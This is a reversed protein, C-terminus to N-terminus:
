HPPQLAATCYEQMGELYGNVRLYHYVVGLGIAGLGVVVTPSLSLASTSKRLFNAIRTKKETYPPYRVAADLKTSRHLFAKRHSLADFGHKGHYAGIGSNGVGGFPLFPQITHFHIDNICIGGCRMEDRFAKARSSSSTFLYAALPKEEPQAMSLAQDFSRFTRVPLIPGFIEEKLLKSDDPVDVYITPAIYNDAEDVEGGYYVKEGRTRGGDEGMGPMIRKIREVHSANVIRSYDPSSKPTSTFFEEITKVMKELLRDRVKEHCILTNVSTCMQGCNLWKGMVIRKATVDLDATEDVICPCQGGLELLVPTLHRAAAAMVVKGVKTSGTYLICDFREKLIMTTEEVGGEVVAFCDRDLYSLLHAAFFASVAPALESPKVMACNGASIAAVLPNTVLHLPANWPSIILVVGLPESVIQSSAPQHLLPTPVSEPKMWERFHRIAHEIEAVATDIEVGQTKAGAWRLDSHLANRIDASHDLLLQKLGRLQAERWKATKTRGQRHVRKLKDVVRGIEEQKRVGSM